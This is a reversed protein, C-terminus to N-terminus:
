DFSFFLLIFWEMTSPCNKPFWEGRALLFFVEGGFSVHELLIGGLEYAGDFPKLLLFDQLKKKKELACPALLM